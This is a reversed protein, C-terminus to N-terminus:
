GTNAQYKDQGIIHLLQDRGNVFQTSASNGGLLRMRYNYHKGSLEAQIEMVEQRTLVRNYVFAHSVDSRPPSYRTDGVRAGGIVLVSNKKTTDGNRCTRAKGPRGNFWGQCHGGQNWSGILINWKGVPVKGFGSDFPGPTPGVHGARSDSIVLARSWYYDPTQTM